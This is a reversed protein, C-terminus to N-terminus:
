FDNLVYIFISTPWKCGGKVDQQVRIAQTGSVQQMGSMAVTVSPLSQTNTHLHQDAPAKNREETIPLENRSFRHARYVYSM